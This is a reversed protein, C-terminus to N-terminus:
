TELIAKSIVKGLIHIHGILENIIEFDRLERNDITDQMDIHIQNVDAVFDKFPREKGAKERELRVLRAETKKLSDNCFNPM